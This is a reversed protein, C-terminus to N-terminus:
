HVDRIDDLESTSLFTKSSWARIWERNLSQHHLPFLAEIFPWDECQPAIGAGGEKKPLAIMHYIAQLREAEHTPKGADEDELTPQSQRIGHLWDRVRLRHVAKRLSREPARIFVLLTSDNGPRVETDLGASSLAQILTRFQDVSRTEDDAKGYNYLIVFDIGLNANAIGADREEEKKHPDM